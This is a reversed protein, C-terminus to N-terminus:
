RYTVRLRVPGLRLVAGSPLPLEPAVRKENVFTGNTSAIVDGGGDRVFLSDGKSVIECHVSSVYTNYDIVVQCKRRDRGILLKDRLPYEFTRSPNDLDQLTVRIGEGAKLMRTHGDEGSGRQGAMTGIGSLDIRQDRAKARKKKVSLIVATVVAIILLLVAAIGALIFVMVPLGEEEHSVVTAEDDEDDEEETEEEETEPEATTEAETETTEEETTAVEAAKFPMEALVTCYDEGFTIRVAKDTGDCSKDPPVVNVKIISEDEAMGQLIDETSAQDLLYNRGGSMRSLAFMKKLNEENGKSPCGIAYVPVKAAQIKKNLEDDTYGLAENDVGDAIVIVRTYRIDQCSGIDSMVTYMVNTFYSDQNEFQLGDIQAAIDPYDSSERVLYTLNEAFTAITFVDGDHRVAVLQTLFEKIEERYKKDISLSNDLVVITRFPGPEETTFGLAEDNGVYVHDIERGQDKIFLVVSDPCTYANIVAELQAAAALTTTLIVMCCVMSIFRAIKKM